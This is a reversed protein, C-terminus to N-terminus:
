TYFTENETRLFKAFTVIKQNRFIKKSSIILTKLSETSFYRRYKRHKASLIYVTEVGFHSVITLQHKGEQIQNQGLSQKGEQALAQGSVGGPPVPLPGSCQGTCRPHGTRVNATVTNGKTKNLIFQRSVRHGWGSFCARFSRLACKEPKKQPM